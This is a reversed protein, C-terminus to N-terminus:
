LRSIYRWWANVKHVQHLSCLYSVGVLCFRFHLSWWSILSCRSVRKQTLWSILANRQYPPASIGQVTRFERRGRVDDINCCWLQHPFRSVLRFSPSFPESSCKLTIFTDFVCLIKNVILIYHCSPQFGNSLPESLVNGHCRIHWSAQSIFYDMALYRSALFLYGYCHICLIYNVFQELHHDRKPEGVTTFPLENTLENLENTLCFAATTREYTIRREDNTFSTLSEYILFLDTVTSSLSYSVRLGTFFPALRLCDNITFQQLRSYNLTITISTGIFGFM